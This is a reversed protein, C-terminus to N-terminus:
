SNSRLDDALGQLAGRMRAVARRRVPLPRLLQEGDFTLPVTERDTLEAALREADELLVASQALRRELLEVVLSIQEDATRARRQEGGPFDIELPVFDSGAESVVEEALDSFGANSLVLALEFITPAVAMGEGM